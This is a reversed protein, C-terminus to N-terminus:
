ADKKCFIVEIYPPLTSGSVLPVQTTAVSGAASTGSMTHTHLATPSTDTPPTNYSTEGAYSGNGTALTGAGHTHTATHSHGTDTHTHTDSGGASGYAAAGMLFKGDFASVRTWGAPCAADFMGIMSSVNGILTLTAGDGAAGAHAHVTGLHSLNDTVQQNWLAATVLTGTTQTAPTTWTM